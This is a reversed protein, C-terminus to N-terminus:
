SACPWHWPLLVDAVTVAVLPRSVRPWHWPPLVNVVAVAVLPRLAHVHGTRRRGRGIRTCPVAAITVIVVVIHYVHSTGHRCSLRRGGGEIFSLTVVILLCVAAVVAVLHRM